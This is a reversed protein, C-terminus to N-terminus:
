GIDAAKQPDSNDSPAPRMHGSIMKGIIVGLDLVSLLDVLAKDHGNGEFLAEAIPIAKTASVKIEDGESAAFYGQLADIYSEVGFKNELFACVRPTLALKYSQGGIEVAVDGRGFLPSYVSM